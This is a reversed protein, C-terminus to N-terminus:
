AAAVAPSTEAALMAAREADLLRVLDLVVVFTGNRRGIGALAERRWKGGIEPAAELDPSDLATVEFVRDAKLGFLAGGADTRTDVVIIRTSDADNTAEMGLWLRLDIVPVSQGRLDLMGLLHKPAHPLRAVPLAELIERVQQVPLALVEDTLGLTLYQTAESM